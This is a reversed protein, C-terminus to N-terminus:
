QYVLALNCEVIVKDKLHLKEDIKIFAVFGGSKGDVNYENKPITSIPNGCNPCSVAKSSVDKDCEDCKILAV